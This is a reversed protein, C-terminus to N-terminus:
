ELLHDRYKSIFKLSVGAKKVEIVGRLIQFDTGLGCAGKQIVLVVSSAM